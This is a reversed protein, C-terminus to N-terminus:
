KYQNLDFDAEYTYNDINSMVEKKLLSEMDPYGRYYYSRSYERGESNYKFEKTFTNPMKYDRLDVYYTGDGYKLLNIFYTTYYYDFTENINKNDNLTTNVKYVLIARNKTYGPNIEDKNVLLITGLFDIMNLKAEERWSKAVFANLADRAQSDMGKMLEEPINKVSKIYGGLGEVTYEKELEKILYGDKVFAKRDKVNAVVLKVKKGNKLDNNDEIRFSLRDFPSSNNNEISVNADYEIGDFSIDVNDFVDVITAEKLGAVEIEKDSYKLNVGFNELAAEEEVAWKLEIKDGNSLDKYKNYEWDVYSSLLAEPIYFYEQPNNTKIKNNKIYQKIIIESNEEMFKPYDFVVNASGATNVGEFSISMYDDLNISPAPIFFKLFIFVLAVLAIAGLIGMKTRKSLQDKEKPTEPQFNKAGQQQYNNQAPVGKNAM